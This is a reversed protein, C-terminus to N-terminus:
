VWQAGTLDKWILLGFVFNAAEEEEEHRSPKDNAATVGKMVRGAFEWSNRM